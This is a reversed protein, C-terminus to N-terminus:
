SDSAVKLQKMRERARHLTPGVSNEPIGLENSIERYTKGDIHYLRVIRAESSPLQSILVRVEESDSLRQVHDAGGQDLSSQHANVHGMAELQKRKVLSNVVIRRAVVVLYSALSSKGRFHRLVAFENKLLTLFIESCLDDIDDQSLRVSRAHATNSIVHVFTGLFRDVFEEWAGAERELCRTLIQRDTEIFPM